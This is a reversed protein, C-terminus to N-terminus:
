PIGHLIHHDRIHWRWFFQHPPSCLFSRRTRAECTVAFICASCIILPRCIITCFLPEVYSLLKGWFCCYLSHELPSMSLNSLPRIHGCKMLCHSTHMLNCNDCSEWSAKVEDICHWRGRWRCSCRNCLHEKQILEREGLLSTAISYTTQLGSKKKLRTIKLYFAHGM